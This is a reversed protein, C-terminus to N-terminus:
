KTWMGVLTRQGREQKEKQPLVSSQEPVQPNGVTTKLTSTSSALDFDKGEEGGDTVLEKFKEGTLTKQM